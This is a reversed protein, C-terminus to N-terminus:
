PWCAAGPVNKLTLMYPLLYLSKTYYAYCVSTLMYHLLYLFYVLANPKWFSLNTHLLNHGAHLALCM